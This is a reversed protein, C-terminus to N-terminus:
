MRHHGVVFVTKNADLVSNWEVGTKRGLIWDCFVISLSVPKVIHKQKYYFVMSMVNCLLFVDINMVLEIWCSM